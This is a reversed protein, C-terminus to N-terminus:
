NDFDVEIPLDGSDDDEDDLSPFMPTPDIQGRVEGNNDFWVRAEPLPEDLQGGFHKAVAGGVQGFEAAYPDFEANVGQQNVEVRFGPVPDVRMRQHDIDIEVPLAEKVTNDIAHGFDQVAHGLDDFINARAPVAGMLALIMLGGAIRRLAKM